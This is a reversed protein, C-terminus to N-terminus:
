YLSRSRRVSLTQPFQLLPLLMVSSGFRTSKTLGAGGCDEDEIDDDDDGDVDDDDDDDGDDDDGDGDVDDDDDDDDDGNEDVKDGETKLELAWTCTQV